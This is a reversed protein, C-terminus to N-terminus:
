VKSTPLSFLSAEKAPGVIKRDQRQQRANNAINNALAASLFTLLTEFHTVSAPLVSGGDQIRAHRM